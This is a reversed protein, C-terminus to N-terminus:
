VNTAAIDRALAARYAPCSQDGAKHPPSEHLRKLRSCTACNPPKDHNPCNAPQHGSHGCWGCTESASRCLGASHGFLHCKFCRLLRFHDRARHAQYGIYVHGANVLLTRCTPPLSIVAHTLDPNRTRLRTVLKVEQKFTAIDTDPIEGAINQDLMATLIEEDTTVKPIDHVIIRPNKLGQISAKIGAKELRPNLSLIRDAAARNKVLLGATNAAAKVVKKVQLKDLAPDVSRSFAAITAASSNVEASTPALKVVTATTLAVTRKPPAIGTLESVISATTPLPPLRKEIATLRRLIEDERSFRAAALQDQLSATKVEALRLINDLVESVEKRKPITFCETERLIDRVLDFGQALTAFKM